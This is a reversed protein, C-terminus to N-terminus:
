RCGSANQTNGTCVTPSPCRGSVAVSVCARVTDSCSEDTCTRGDDCRVAVGRRCYGQVCHEIGSCFRGDSCAADNECPKDAVGTCVGDLCLLGPACADGCAGCNAVDTTIDVCSDDCAVQGPACVCAPAAFLLMALVARQYRRSMTVEKPHVDDPRSRLAPRATLSGRADFTVDLLGVFSGHRYV